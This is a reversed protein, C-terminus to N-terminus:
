ADPIKWVSLATKGFIWEKDEQTFFPIKELPFQLANAYGERSGCQPFDSGWMMRRPGFADYVRRIVPPYDDFPPNRMPYPRPLFQGFGPLKIYVNRYQSLDLVKDFLKLDPTQNHQTPASAGLHELVIKLDPFEKVIDRFHDSSLVKLADGASIALGLDAAKRWLALPDSGPFPEIPRIRLGIAGQKALMELQDLADPQQPDVSVTVGFRGKYNRACEFHYQNNYNAAYQILVAKKVNNRDMQSLLTEIPEYWTPSTHVHTDTIIM